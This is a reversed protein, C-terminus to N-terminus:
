HTWTWGTTASGSTTTSTRGWRTRTGLRALEQQRAAAVRAPDRPGVARPGRVFRALQLPVLASGQDRYESRCPVAGPRARGQGRRPGPLQVRHRAHEAVPLVPAAAALRALAIATPIINGAFPERTFPNRIQTSIESFDGRWMKETPVSVIPSTQEDQRIGEWASMFFTRNHGDYLGPIVVPGGLVAGFQNRESPNKPIARNDFYGRANLAENQFFEYASGHFDNTGSKTVVNVHVGLFSGYEASTSGTQVQVEEVADQIPRMSTMALLNSSSSIGDLTMNNQISRQGAGRFSFGIDSTSGALVGPTTSALSWVNRGLNPLESVARTDITQSLAARDTALVVAKAEVTVTETREGVDLVADRRVVQNGAVQLGTVQFTKFGQLAITISYRGIRVNPITYQGQENSVTEYTDQTEVNVATVSAGAIVGGGSDTVTGVLGTQEALQAGRGNRRGHM